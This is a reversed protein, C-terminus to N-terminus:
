SKRQAAAQPGSICHGRCFDNDIVVAINTNFAIELDDILLASPETEGSASGDTEAAAAVGFVLWKAITRVMGGPKLVNDDGAIQRSCFRFYLQKV